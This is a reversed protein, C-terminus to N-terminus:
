FIKGQRMYKLYKRRLGNLYRGKLLVIEIEIEPIHVLPDEPMYYYAEKPLKGQRVMLRHLQCLAYRNRGWFTNRNDFMQNRKAIFSALWDEYAYAANIDGLIMGGFYGPTRM